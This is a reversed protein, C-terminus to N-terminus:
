AGDASAGAGSVSRRAPQESGRGHAVVVLAVGALIV